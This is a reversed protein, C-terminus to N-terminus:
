VQPRPRLVPRPKPANKAATGARNWCAQIERLREMTDMAAQIQEKTPEYSLKKYEGTKDDHLSQLWDKYSPDLNEGKDYVRLTQDVMKEVSALMARLRIWRHNEWTMKEGPKAPVDFHDKIVKACEEGQNSLFEILPTPMNLNLGGQKSTLPIRAIRDRYGPLRGLTADNWNQMTSVMAWIFGALKGFSSKEKPEKRPDASLTYEFRNWHDVPDTNNNSGDMEPHLKSEHTDEPAEVLDISFTPRGPIPADFFHIPFNSCLGGDTFWCREPMESGKNSRKTKEASYDISHLPIASLLFPFSLSMRTVVVVPVDAPAPMRHFGLPTLRSRLASERERETNNEPLPRPHDIMWEVVEEPFLQRFEDTRFFFLQNEKLDADDRFPLRYPRGHTLNTTMMELNVKRQRLDAAGEPSDWLHGFTLPPGAPDLGAVENFYEKLWPTLPKAACPAPNSPDPMGTCLGFKNRSIKCVFDFGFVILPLIAAGALALSIGVAFLLGAVLPRPPPCRLSIAVLIVGLSAGLLTAWGYVKMARVIMARLGAGFGRGLAESLVDFLKRTGANPRFLAFLRTQSNPGTTKALESGLKGLLEFGKDCDKVTRRYEAAAAAAAAIAGASTGGLNIFRFRKALSVIAKPYVVGSTIGGKMVIDCTRGPRTDPNNKLQTQNESM